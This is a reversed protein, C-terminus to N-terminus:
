ARGSRGHAQLHEGIRRQALVVHPSPPLLALTDLILRQCTAVRRELEAATFVEEIREALREPRVPLAACKHRLWKWDPRWRRNLAFLLNLINYVDWTLRENLALVDQRRALTWRIGGSHPLRWVSTNQEILRAQLGEPYEALWSQWRALAGASRLAVAQSVTYALTLRSTRYEDLVGRLAAELMATTQWGVEITVDRYRFTVALTGDEWPVDEAKVDTAGIAGLWTDRQGADPLAEVWLNLEVDSGDDALGLAVSGTVAVEQGLAPPCRDAVEQAIELRDRSHRTADPSLM